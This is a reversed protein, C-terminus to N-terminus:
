KCLLIVNRGIWWLMFLTFITWIVAPRHVSTYLRPRRERMLEVYCLFLVAPLSVVLLANYHLASMVDLHLLSHVARQSGCGPCQLGTLMLFPCRPFWQSAAPDYAYYILVVVIGTLIMAVWASRSKM